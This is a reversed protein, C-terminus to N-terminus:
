GSPWRVIYVNTTSQKNISIGKVSIFYQVWGGQGKHPSSPPDHQKLILPYVVSSAHNMYIYIFSLM